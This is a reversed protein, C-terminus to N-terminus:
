ISARHIQNWTARPIVKGLAAWSPFWCVTLGNYPLSASGPLAITAVAEALQKRGTTELDAAAM